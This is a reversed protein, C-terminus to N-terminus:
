QVVNNLKSNYLSISKITKLLLHRIRSCTLESNSCLTCYQVANQFYFWMATVGIVVRFSGNM